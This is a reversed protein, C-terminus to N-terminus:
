AAPAVDSGGVASRALGERTLAGLLEAVDARITDISVDPFQTGLEAAVDDLTTRAPPLLQWVMAGVANLGFYTETGPLFLMAGDDLRQFVVTPHPTPLLM